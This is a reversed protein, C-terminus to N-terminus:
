VELLGKLDGAMTSEEEKFWFYVDGQFCGIVSCRFSAAIKTASMTPKLRSTPM